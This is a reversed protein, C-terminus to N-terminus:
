PRGALVLVGARVLPLLQPALARATAGGLARGRLLERVEALAGDPVLLRHGAIYCYRAGNATFHAGRVRPDKRLVAGGELAGVLEASDAPSQTPEPELDPKPATLAVAICEDLEDDTASLADRLLSRLRGFAAADIEEPDDPEVLDPDEYRTGERGLLHEVAVGLLETSTPARFGLSLTTCPESGVGFHAIGPPLYLVDGPEVRHTTEPTFRHLVRLDCDNRWEPDFREAYSWERRGRIQVLFVDYSDAHPGVTGGPASCSIMIDDVRWSPVFRVLDLLAAVRPVHKDVDQVLLSWSQGDLQSRPDEDFPGHAM